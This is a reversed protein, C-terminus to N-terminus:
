RCNRRCAFASTQRLRDVLKQVDDRTVLEHAHCQLTESLHTILVSEPDIVTYGALEAAEKNPQTIWLAPLGYVPENTKQGQIPKQVIGPDMALLKDPELKGSSVIHDYLRIEYKDPELTISDRLRVLPMIIGYEQAFKSRLASIRELLSSKKRPDVMSILRVGVLVTIRDVDLLEELPQKESGGPVSPTGDAKKKQQPQSHGMYHAITGTVVALFIFPIKPFGPVLAMLGM